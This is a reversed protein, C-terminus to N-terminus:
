NDGAPDLHPTKITTAPSYYNDSMVRWDAGTVFGVRVRSSPAAITVITM